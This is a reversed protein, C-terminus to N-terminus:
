GGFVGQRLIRQIASNIALITFTENLLMRFELIELIDLVLFRDCHPLYIVEVGPSDSDFLAVMDISMIKKRLAYLDCFKFSIADFEMQLVFSDSADCQVISANKTKYIEEQKMACLM